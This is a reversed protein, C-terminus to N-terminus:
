LCLIDAGSMGLVFGVKISVNRKISDNPSVSRGEVSM